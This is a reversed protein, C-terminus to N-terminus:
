PLPRRSGADEHDKNMGDNWWDEICGFFETSPWPPRDPPNSLWTLHVVAVRGTGDQLAFLVDDTDLRRGIAEVKVGFLPHGKALEQQLESQLSSQEDTDKEIPQWPELWLM